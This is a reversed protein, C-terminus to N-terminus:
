GTSRSPPVQKLGEDGRSCDEMGAADRLLYSLNKDKSATISDRHLLKYQTNHNKQVSHRENVLKFITNTYFLRPGHLTNEKCYKKCM